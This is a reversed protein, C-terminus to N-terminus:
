CSNHTALVTSLIKSKKFYISIKCLTRFHLPIIALNINLISNLSYPKFKIYDYKSVIEASGTTVVNRSISLYVSCNTYERDLVSYRLHRSSKKIYVLLSGYVLCV